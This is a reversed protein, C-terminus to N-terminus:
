SSRGVLGGLELPAPLAVCRECIEDWFSEASRRIGDQYQLEGDWVFEQLRRNGTCVHPMGVDALCGDVNTSPHASGDSHVYRPEDPNHSVVIVTRFGYDTASIIEM